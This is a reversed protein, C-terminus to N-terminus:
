FNVLYYFPGVREYSVCHFLHLMFIVGHSPYTRQRRLQSCRHGHQVFAMISEGLVILRKVCDVCAQLYQLDRFFTHLSPILGNVLLLKTLIHEREQDNFAAIIKGGRVQGRLEEADSTSARSATLELTIVTIEDM